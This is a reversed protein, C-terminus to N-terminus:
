QPGKPHNPLFLHLGVYLSCLCYLPAVREVRADLTDVLAQRADREARHEAYRRAGLGQPSERM